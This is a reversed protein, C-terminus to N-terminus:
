SSWEEEQKRLAKQKKIARILSIIGAIFAIVGGALVAIPLIFGASDSIEAPNLPNYGITKKDGIKYGVPFVGYETEYEQGDATYKLYVTETAPHLEGQNDTYEAEAPELRSVYAETKKFDKTHDVARFLFISFVMLILGAPILFRAVYTERFFTALKNM